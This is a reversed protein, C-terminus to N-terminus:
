YLFRSHLDYIAAIFFVGFASFIGPLILSLPNDLVRFLGNSLLQSGPDGSFADAHYHYILFINKGTLFKLKAFVYAAM